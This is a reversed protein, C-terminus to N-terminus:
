LHPPDPTPSSRAHHQQYAPGERPPDRTAANVVAYHLGVMPAPLQVPVAAHHSTHAPPQHTAFHMAQTENYVHSSLRRSLLPHSAGGTPSSQEATPTSRKATPSSYRSPPEHVRAESPQMPHQYGHVSSLPLSSLPHSARALSYQKATPTSFHSPAEQIESHLQRVRVTALKPVGSDNKPRGSYMTMPSEEPESIPVVVHGRHYHCDRETLIDSLPTTSPHPGTAAPSGMFQKSPAHSIHPSHPVEPVLFPTTTYHCKLLFDPSCQELRTAPVGGMMRAM